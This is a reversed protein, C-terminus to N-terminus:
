TLEDRLVQKVIAARREPDTEEGPEDFEEGDVVALKELVRHSMRELLDETIEKM